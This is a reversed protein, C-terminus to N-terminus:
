RRVREVGAGPVGSPDPETRATHRPPLSRILLAIILLSSLAWWQHANPWRLLHLYAAGAWLGAATIAPWTWRTSRAILFPMPWLLYQPGFRYTFILFALILALTLDDPEARRWLWGIVLIGALLVPTGVTGLVPSVQQHGATAVATWGWDGVVPRASLTGMVTAPLRHWSTDLLVPSSLLSAAPVAATWALATLRPRLAPLTLLMGPVILATWSTSTVALGALIGAAHARGNRAVLLAAVAFLLSLPGFQGHIASVMLGLPACAYQFARLRHQESALKGVLPILALDALVPVIRGSVNWSLGLLEGAEKQAALVYAMFPLFHWRNDGLAVAPDRGGLVADAANPFDVALDYPQVPDGSSILMIPLRLAAGVGLAVPLSPAWGRWGAVLAAALGAALLLLVPLTQQIM